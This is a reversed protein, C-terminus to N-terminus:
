KLHMAKEIVDSGLTKNFGVTVDRVIGDTGTYIVVPMVSVGCDRALARASQLLHEGPEPRAVIAEIDDANNDTFAWIIDVNDPLSSVARRVEDVTQRAFGTSASLLVVLTPRAFRDGRHRTYREGTTTPLTIAPLPQSPLKSITFTSERYLEFANPFMEALMPETIPQCGKNDASSTYRCVITQEALAGPNNETESFLPMGTAPDFGYTLEKCVTGDVIMKAEFLNCLEGSVTTDPTLKWNYRSDAVAQEIENAIFQPLLNTFQGRMQVGPLSNSGTGSPMFVHQNQAFHHEQMRQGRFQYMDGDAYACFGTVSDTDAGISWKVLYSCPALTDAPAAQSLLSVTYQVDNQLSMLVQYDVKSRYCEVNRLTSVLDAVGQASVGLPAACLM